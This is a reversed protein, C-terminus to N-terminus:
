RATQSRRPASGKDTELTMQVRVLSLAVALLPLWRLRTIVLSFVALMIGGLLSLKVLIRGEADRIVFYQDSNEEFISKIRTGVETSSTLVDHYITKITEQTTTDMGKNNSESSM